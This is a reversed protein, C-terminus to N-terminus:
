ERKGRKRAEERRTSRLCHSITDTQAVKANHCWSLEVVKWPFKNRLLRSHHSLWVFDDTWVRRGGECCLSSWLFNRGKYVLWVTYAAILQMTPLFASNKQGKLWTKSNWCRLQASSYMNLWMTFTGIKWLLEELSVTLCNLCLLSFFWLFKSDRSGAKFASDKCHM